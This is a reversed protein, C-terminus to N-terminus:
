KVPDPSLGADETGKTGADPREQWRQRTLVLIVPTRHGVYHIFAQRWADTRTQVNSLWDRFHENAATRAPDARVHELCISAFLEIDGGECRSVATQLASGIRDWLTIRDLSQGFLECLVMCFDVAHNRIDADKELASLPRHPDCLGALRRRFEEQSLSALNGPM